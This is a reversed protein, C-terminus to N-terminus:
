FQAYIVVGGVTASASSHLCMDNGNGGRLAGLSAYDAAFTLISPYVGALTATGTGCTSGTGSRITFTAVTDSVFDIHCIRTNKAMVGAVLVTDTGAAITIPAQLSCIFLTRVNTGDSVSTVIPNGGLPSGDAAPGVVTANLNAPTPQVVTANLNAATPQDVIVDGTTATKIPRVNTGDQGAVYVPATTPPSGSATVGDVVCPTGVTGPCGGFSPTNGGLPAYAKYGQLTGQITGSGTHSAFVVRDWGVYGTFVVTCNTVTSCAVSTSPNSGSTVTGSFNGFAGPASGGTASQFALSVASFGTVQYTMVWYACATTRNDSFTTQNTDTWPGFNIQCTPTQAVLGASCLGFILLLRKM